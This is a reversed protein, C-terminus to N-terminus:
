RRNLRGTLYTDSLFRDFLNEVSYEPTDTYGRM